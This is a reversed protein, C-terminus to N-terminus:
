GFVREQYERLQKTADMFAAARQKHFADDHAVIEAMREATWHRTASTEIFSDFPSSLGFLFRKNNLKYHTITLYPAMDEDTEICVYIKISGIEEHTEEEIQPINIWDLKM